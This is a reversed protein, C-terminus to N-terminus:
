ISFIVGQGSANIHIVSLCNSQSIAQQTNTNVNNSSQQQLNTSTGPKKGERLQSLYWIIAFLLWNYSRRTAEIVLENSMGKDNNGYDSMKEKTQKNIHDSLVDERQKNYLVRFMITALIIHHLRYRKIGIKTKLDIDSTIMQPDFTLEQVDTKTKKKGHSYATDKNAERTINFINMIKEYLQSKYVRFKYIIKNTFSRKIDKEKEKVSISNLTKTILFKMRLLQNKEVMEKSVGSVKTIFSLLTNKILVHRTKQYDNLKERDREQSNQERKNVKKIVGREYMRFFNSVKRVIPIEIIKRVLLTGKEQIKQVQKKVKKVINEPQINESQKNVGKKTKTAKELQTDTKKVNVTNSTDDEQKKDLVKALKKRLVEILLASTQGAEKTTNLIATNVTGVMDESIARPDVVVRDSNFESINNQNKNDSNENVNKKFMSEHEMSRNAESILVRNMATQHVELETIEDHIVLLSSEGDNIDVVERKNNNKSLSHLVDGAESRSLDRMHKSMDISKIVVTNEIRELVPFYRFNKPDDMAYAVKTAKGSIILEEAKELLDYQKDGSSESMGLKEFHERSRKRMDDITGFSETYLKGDARIEYVGDVVEARNKEQMVSRVNDQLGISFLILAQKHARTELEEGRLSTNQELIEVQEQKLYTFHDIEALQSFGHGDDKMEVNM